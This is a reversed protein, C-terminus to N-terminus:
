ESCEMVSHFIDDEFPIERRLLDRITDLRFSNAFQNHLNMTINRSISHVNQVDFDGLSIVAGHHALAEVMTRQNHAVCLVLSPVALFALEVLMMGGACVALDAQAMLEAINVPAVHLAIWARSGIQQRLANIHPYGAGVVVDVLLDDRDLAIVAEVTCATANDNDFGGFGIFLRKTDSAPKPVSEIHKRVKKFEPRLLAYRLGAFVKCEAPVLGAWRAKGKVSFSPDLLQDCAHLRNAQGDITLIKAGTTSKVFKEWDAGIAYHDAVVWAANTDRIIDITQAADEEMEAGLWSRYDPTLDSERSVNGRPQIPLLVLSYGKDTIQAGCHGQHARCVFLSSLGRQAILDALVLCRMVHGSGIQLSADCRFVVEVM